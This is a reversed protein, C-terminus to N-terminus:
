IIKKQYIQTKKVIKFGIKEYLKIAKTPNEDDVYLLANELGKNKLEKLGKLMLATGIGRRRFPKLVGIDNIWGSLTEKERNYKEDIGISIYGVSKGELEAFFYAQWQLWPNELLWHRTEEIQSPRYNFHEKFCENELNNLLIIDEESTVDLKRMDVERNEGINFPIKDLSMKMFSSSRILRFGLDEFLRICVERTSDLATEAIEMGREKLSEIAKQALAKGVGRRRYEPLVGLWSIFGKKEKRFKDVYANVIGAPKGDLEAIFMGSSDFTPSKELKQMEEVSLSRFDEYDRYAGSAIYAWIAEDRGVVFTRIKLMFVFGDKIHVSM